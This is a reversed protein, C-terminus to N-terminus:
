RARGTLKEYQEAVHRRQQDDRRHERLYKRMVRLNRENKRELGAPDIYGPHLIPKAQTMRMPVGANKLSWDLREFVSCEFRVGPVIPFLRPQFMNHFGGGAIPSIVWMMFAEGHAEKLMSAVAAPEVLKEDGDLWFAYPTRTISIAFNRVAAFDPPDSWKYPAIQINPYKRSYEYIIRGTADESKTDIVILIKEFIGPRLASELCDIITPADDRTIIQCTCPAMHRKGVTFSYM